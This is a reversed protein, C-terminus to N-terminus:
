QVELMVCSLAPRNAAPAVYHGTADVCEGSAGATPLVGDWSVYICSLTSGQCAEVNVQGQPLLTVANYRVSEVDYTAMTAASCDATSTSCTTPAATPAASTWNTATRYAAIQTLNVRMREALDQAIAIAQTRAYADSSAHVARLQLAAFGIVGVGLVLVAALVEILGFGAQRSPAITSTMFTDRSM